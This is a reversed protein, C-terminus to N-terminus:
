IKKSENLLKWLNKSKNISFIGKNSESLLQKLLANQEKLENITMEKIKLEAEAFAIDKFLKKNEEELKVSKSKMEFYENEMRKFAEEDSSSKAEALQKFTEILQDFSSQEMSVMSYQQSENIIEAEQINEKPADRNTTDEDRFENRGTVLELLDDESTAHGKYENIKKAAKQDIIIVRTKRNKIIESSTTLEDRTM